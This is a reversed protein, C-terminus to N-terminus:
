SPHDMVNDSSSRNLSVIKNSARVNKLTMKLKQREGEVEAFQLSLQSYRDHMERLEADMAAHRDKLELMERILENIDRFSKFVAEEDSHQKLFSSQFQINSKNKTKLAEALEIELAFVRDLANGGSSIECFSPFMSKLEENTKHLQMFERHTVPLGSDVDHGISFVANENKMKELEEHLHEISSRLRQAGLHEINLDLNKGNSQSFPAVDQTMQLQVPEMSDANEGDLISIPDENERDLTSVCNERKVFTSEDQKLSLPSSNGTSRNFAVENEFNSSSKVDELQGKVLMLETALRYKEEEFELLNAGLKEKEERCCELSLLACELEAKTLDYANSKERKESLASMLETELASLRVSLEENKKLSMAESKKRNEIEDIADQLKLLMEEGHKKSVSVQQKLEQVKTECQEKIFAIRLSDQVTASQAETDRKERAVLCEAEAKDKQEKLHISLNKFEETKLIQERFQSRLRMLNEKYEDLLAIHTTQEDVKGKLVIVLIELQEKSLTLHNIEEESDKMMSKLQEIESAHLVSDMSFRSEMVMLKRKCDELQDRVENNSDSLRKNKAGSVELDSRLSEVTASLNCKERRWDAECALNQNLMYEVIAEYHNSVYVLRVDAALSFDHMELLQSELSAKNKELKAIVENQQDLNHALRSKKMELDSALKRVQLLEDRQLVSDMSFRSETVMLKRKCDELQDRIENNSDSLLKNQAGSVELDSRLSELSALLNGNERRWDAECALCQNLMYETDHHRKQLEGVIAEYHKSVYALRVDAALSFDHLELLQSEFSAQHSSNKELEAILENQQGLLRALRSKEMELDSALKRVHLLEDIQQELVLLKDQDKSLCITLDRVKGELEDNCAKEDRLEEHLAELTEMLRSNESSLKNSEDTKAQLCMILEHKSHMLETINLESRGFEEALSDLGSIELALHGNKCTLEQMQTELLSLDALLIKNQQVFEEEIESSLHLKNAVSELEAQLKDVLANSVDLKSVMDQVGGRFKQKLTLIELRVASLSVDADAKESRLNQNEEMLQCNKACADHQIEELQLIADNIDMSDLNFRQFNASLCFNENYLTLLNALKDQVFKVNGELNEKSSVLEDSEAKLIMLKENLHSLENTLNENEVVEQKLHLSLEANEALCAAYKSQYSRLELNIDDCDKLKQSLLYNEESISVLKEEFIQNQLALDGCQSISSSKYENLARIEDTAKQLSVMFHSQSATSLKLEEVLEGMRGKMIRMDADAECLSQELAKSYIDLNLNMSYMDILEEQDKQYLEEQMLFSAKLDELLVDGGVSRKRSGLNQNQFQSLKTVDDDESLRRDIHSDPQSPLAQKILSENTEFMSLVQSSLLELDKQLKDVAISYNLRARRLAAESTTARRELEKNVTELELREDVFRLMQQNTEERLSEVETKSVSLAYLCTTHENRLHQLELVLRKQNEELEQILAEYYCEMQGMKQTLIEKEVKSEDLERVLDFIQGKMADIAGQPDIGESVPPGMVFNQLVGEPDCLDSGLGNGSVDERESPPMSIEGNGLKFDLLFDLLAELELYIFQTDGDQPLVYTKKQLEKIKGEVVSIGNLFRLQMNQVVRNDSTEVTCVQPSVKLDKLRNLDDKFKLCESKMTSVEKALDEASSIESSLQHSFKQTESGLEDALSQLSSVELKLNFFSSEALELSGKLRNNEECAMALENDMSNDSGWGQASGSTRHVMNRHDSSDEKVTCPSQCQSLVHLDGSTTSKLSDIEHTSSTEHKEAYLSGSTNSSCEENLNAEEDLSSLESADAKLKIRASVKYTQDGTVEESHPVRSPVSHGHGDVGSQVGTERLERQQEFERFGTKSTLLQVTMHLVTGFNCGSLPLTVASPKLADVYDALNITAEGLISSRSSGMSVVIKYLKEDYQKSKSDQLLRTTEYIPDAWKCSGNRVNAKTTKATPKGSDAPIFTIFLKDWGTLPIHTAHFQLRFVVKVKTKDLKWKSVRSM